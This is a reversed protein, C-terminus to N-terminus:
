DRLQPFLLVDRIAPQDTLFMVLRDVGLAWVRPPRCATNSRPSSIRTM